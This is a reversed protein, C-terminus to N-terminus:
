SWVELDQQKEVDGDSVINLRVKMAGGFAATRILADCGM